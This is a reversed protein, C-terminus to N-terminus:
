ELEKVYKKKQALEFYRADWHLNIGEFFVAHNQQYWPAVQRVVLSSNVAIKAKKCFAIWRDTQHEKKRRVKSGVSYADFSM